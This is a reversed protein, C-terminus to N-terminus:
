FEKQILCIFRNNKNSNENSFIKFNINSIFNRLYGNKAYPWGTEYTYYKKIKFNNLRNFFRKQSLHNTRFTHFPIFNNNIRLFKKVFGNFRSVLHVLNYNEEVPGEIIFFGGKTILKSLKVLHSYPDNLHELVDSIVIIDFYSEFNKNYFSSETYFSIELFKKKLKEVYSNSFEVGTKQFHNPFLNLKNCNGCGFDCMKINEKKYDILNEIFSSFVLNNNQINENYFTSHYSESYMLNLDEDSLINELYVSKCNNCKRYQFIKNNFKTKYPFSESNKNNISGCISCSKKM